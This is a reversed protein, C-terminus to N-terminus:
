NSTKKQALLQLVIPVADRYDELHCWRQDGFNERCYDALSSEGDHGLTFIWGGSRHVAEAGPGDGGKSDGFFFLVDGLSLAVEGKAIGISGHRGMFAGDELYNAYVHLEDLVNGFFHTLVPLAIADAGNTIFAFTLLDKTSTLFEPFGKKPRTTRIVFEIAQELTIRKLVDEFQLKLHEEFTLDGTVKCQYDWYQGWLEGTTRDRYSGFARRLNILTDGCPKFEPNLAVPTGRLTVYSVDDIIQDPQWDPNEELCTDDVDLGAVTGALPKIHQPHNNAKM